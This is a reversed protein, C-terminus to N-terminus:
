RNDNQFALFKEIVVPFVLAGVVLSIPSLWNIVAYMESLSFQDPAIKRGEQIAKWVSPDEHAAEMAEFAAQDFPVMTAAICMLFLTFLMLRMPANLKSTWNKSTAAYIETVVRSFIYADIMFVTIGLLQMSVQPLKLYTFIIGVVASFVFFLLYKPNKRLGYGIIIGAFVVMVLRAIAFTELDRFVWYLSKINTESSSTQVLYQVDLGILLIACGGFGLVISRQFGRRAVFWVMELIVIKWILFNLLSFDQLSIRMVLSPNLTMQLGAIVNEVIEIM